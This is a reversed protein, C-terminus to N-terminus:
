NWLIFKDQLTPDKITDFGLEL